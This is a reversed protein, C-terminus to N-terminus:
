WAAEWLERAKRWGRAQRCTRAHRQRQKHKKIYEYGYGIPDLLLWKDIESAHKPVATSGILCKALSDFLTAEKPELGLAAGKKEGVMKVGM